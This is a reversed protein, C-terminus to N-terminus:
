GKIQIKGKAHNFSKLHTKIISCAQRFFHSSFGDLGLSKDLEMEWITADVEEELIPKM